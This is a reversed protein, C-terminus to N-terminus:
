RAMEGSPCTIWMILIPDEPIMEEGYSSKVLQNEKCVITVPAPSSVSLNQFTKGDGLDWTFKNNIGM